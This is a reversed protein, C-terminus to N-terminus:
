RCVACVACGLGSLWRTPLNSESAIVTSRSTSVVGLLIVRQGSARQQEMLQRWPRQSVDEESCGLVCSCRVSSTVWAFYVQM